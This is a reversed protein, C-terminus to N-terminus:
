CYVKYYYSANMHKAEEICIRLTLYATLTPKNHHMTLILVKILSDATDRKPSFLNTELHTSLRRILASSAM